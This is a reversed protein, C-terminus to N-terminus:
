WNFSDFLDSVNAFEEGDFSITMQENIGNEVLFSSFREPFFRWLIENKRQETEDGFYVSDVFNCLQEWNYYNNLLSWYAAFSNQSHERMLQHAKEFTALSINFDMQNVEGYILEYFKSKIDKRKFCMGFIGNVNSIGYTNEYTKLEDIGDRFSQSDSASKIRICIGHLQESIIM